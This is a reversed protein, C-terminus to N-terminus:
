KVLLLPVTSARMVHETTSGLIAERIRSHGFAGMVILNYAGANAREIIAKEPNGPEGILEVSIDYPELYTQAETLYKNRLQENDHVTLVALSGGLNVAFYGALPLAKNAKDSGDYAVLLRKVSNFAQPTIFVPKSCQRVVAELTAGVLKSEWRAFEGRQGMVVLDALHAQECIIDVPSGYIKESDFEVKETGLIEGCKELVKQSKDDLIKKSEEQFVSSPIIPVFADSGMVIPWEFFRIDVVSIAKIRADFAKALHAGHRVVADTFVSGDVPLLITKIM